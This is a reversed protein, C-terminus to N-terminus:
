PAAPAYGGPLPPPPLPTHLLVYSKWRERGPRLAGIAAGIMGGTVGVGLVGLGATEPINTSFNKATLAGAIGGLSGGVFAGWTSGRLARRARGRGLSVEVTDVFPLRLWAETASDPRAFHLWESDISVAEGVIKRQSISPASVRIRTGPELRLPGQAAAGHFPALALALAALPLHKKM